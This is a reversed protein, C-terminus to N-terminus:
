LVLGAAWLLAWWIEIMGTRKLANILVAPEQSRSDRIVGGVMSVTLVPLAALRPAWGAAAALFPAALSGALLFVIFARTSPRGMRVALTRKGAAADTKLDRLNNLALIACALFGTACAAAWTAATVRHEHVYVTGATALLGFFLFVFLEGLGLYGYPRPGGTYLWGAVVALAGLAILRWDSALAVALGALAAVGFAALAAYKVQRPPIVGSAAARIPGVRLPTDTGRKFDSYDNAYNVGIQMAIAVLLAGFGPLTRILHDHAAIATGALVPSVSVALTAPRAALWWILPKSLPGRAQLTLTNPVSPFAASIPSGSRSTPM